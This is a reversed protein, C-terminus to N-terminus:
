YYSETGAISWKELPCKENLSATKAALPCGCEKCKYLNGEENIAKIVIQGLKNLQVKSPCTDCINLRYRMLKRTYSTTNLYNYWGSAINVLSSM